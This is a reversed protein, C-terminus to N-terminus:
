RVAACLQEAASVWAAKSEKSNPLRSHWGVAKAWERVQQMLEAKTMQRLETSSM